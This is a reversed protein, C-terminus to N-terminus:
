VNYQYHRIFVMDLPFRFFTFEAVPRLPRDPTFESGAVLNGENLVGQPVALMDAM